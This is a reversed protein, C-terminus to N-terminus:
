FDVRIVGFQIREILLGWFTNINDCMIDRIARIALIQVCDRDRFWFWGVFWPTLSIRRIKKINECLVCRSYEAAIQMKDSRCVVIDVKVRKFNETQM